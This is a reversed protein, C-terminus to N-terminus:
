GRWLLWLWDSTSSSHSSFTNILLQQWKSSFLLWWLLLWKIITFLIRNPYDDVLKRRRRCSPKFACLNQKVLLSWPHRLLQNWSVGCWLILLYIHVWMIVMFLFRFYAGFVTSITTLSVLRFLPKLHPYQNHAEHKIVCWLQIPRGQEWHCLLVTKM